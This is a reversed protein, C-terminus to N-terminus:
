EMNRAKRFRIVATRIGAESLQRRVNRMEDFQAFPGVRVRYHTMYADRGYQSVKAEFGQLALQARQAEADARTRYAGAQLYYGMSFEAPAESAPPRNPSPAPPTAVSQEKEPTRRTIQEVPPPSVEIIQTDDLPAQSVDQTQNQTQEPRADSLQAAPPAAPAPEAPTQGQLPRNPDSSSPNLPTLREPTPNKQGIPSPSRTIYLAVAIAIALGTILGLVLGIFMNGNQKQVRHSKTM